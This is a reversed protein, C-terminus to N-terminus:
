VWRHSADLPMTLNFIKKYNREVALLKSLLDQQLTPVMLQDFPKLLLGLNPATGLKTFSAIYTDYLKSYEQVLSALSRSTSNAPSALM